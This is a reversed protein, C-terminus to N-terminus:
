VVRDRRPPFFESDSVLGLDDRSQRSIVRVQAIGADAAGADKGFIRSGKGLAELTTRAQDYRAQIGEPIEGGRRGALHWLTLDAVLGILTIDGDTQHNTLDVATYREGRLTWSEVDSSARQAARELNANNGFTDLAGNTGDDSSLQELVRTDVLEKLQAISIYLPAAM